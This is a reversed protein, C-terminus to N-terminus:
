GPLADFMASWQSTTRVEGEATVLLAAWVEALSDLWGLADGPSMVAAATAAADATEASGAVVSVSLVDRAPRGTLPSLLHSAGPKLSRRTAGSTAIAGPPLDVVVLPPENDYPRMPNEIGVRWTGRGTWRLDGGASVSVRSEPALEAAVGVARDVIWGKGVANLDLRECPGVRVLRGSDEVFRPARLQEVVAALGDETGDADPTSTDPSADVALWFEALETTFPNFAGGSKHWWRLAAMCVEVVEPPADETTGNRWRSLASDARYVSLLDEGREIEALIADNVAAPTVDGPADGDEHEVVVEIHTGLPGITEYRVRESRPM